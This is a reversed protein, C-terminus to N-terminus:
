RVAVSILGTWGGDIGGSARLMVQEVMEDVLCVFEPLYVSEMPNCMDASRFTPSVGQGIMVCYM